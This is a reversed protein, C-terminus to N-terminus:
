EWGPIEPPLTKGDYQFSKKLISNTCAIKILDHFHSAEADLLEPTPPITNNKDSLEDEIQAQFLDWDAKNYNFTTNIRRIKDRIKIKIPKHDSGFDPLCEISHINIGSHHLAIDLIDPRCKEQPQYYTPRPPALVQIGNQTTFKQLRQGRRNFARCGWTTNKANFDGCLISFKHNLIYKFEIKSKPYIYSSYINISKSWIKITIAVLEIGPVPTFQFNCHAINKKVFIAVGQTSENTPTAPFHSIYNKFNVQNPHKLLTEQLLLVDPQYQDLLERLDSDRAKIGRCNWSILNLNNPTNPTWRNTAGM